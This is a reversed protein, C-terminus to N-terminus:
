QDRAAAPPFLEARPKFIRNGGPTVNLDRELEHLAETSARRLHCDILSLVLLRVLHDQDATPTGNMM